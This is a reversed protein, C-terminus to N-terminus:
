GQPAALRPLETRPSHLEYLTGDSDLRYQAVADSVDNGFMDVGDEDDPRTWPAIREDPTMVIAQSIAASHLTPRSAPHGAGHHPLRMAGAIAAVILILTVLAVQIAVRLVAPVSGEVVDEAVSTGRSSLKPAYSTTHRM